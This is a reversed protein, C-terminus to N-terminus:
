MDMNFAELATSEHGCVRRIGEGRAGMRGGRVKEGMGVVGGRGGWGSMEVGREGVPGGAWWVRVELGREGVRLGSRFFGGADLCVM